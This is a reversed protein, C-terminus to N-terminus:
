DGYQNLADFLAKNEISCPRADGCSPANIHEWFGRHTIVDQVIFQLTKNCNLCSVGLTEELPIHDPISGLEEIPLATGCATNEYHYETFLYRSNFKNRIGVFGKLNANYVGVVLNRSKIKYVYRNKLNM